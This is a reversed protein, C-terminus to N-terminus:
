QEDIALFTKGRSLTERNNRESCLKLFTLDLFKSDLVVYLGFVGLVSVDLVFVDFQFDHFVLEDIAFFTEGRSLTERNNRQSFLKLFM